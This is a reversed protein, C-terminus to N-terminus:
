FKFPVQGKKKKTGPYRPLSKTPIVYSSGGPNTDRVSQNIMTKGGIIDVGAKCENTCGDLDNNNGDDCEENFKTRPYSMEGDDVIGDGCIPMTCNDRCFNPAGWHLGQDCEEGTDIVGDGCYASRCSMRCGDVAVDSNLTGDDCDEGVEITGNGCVAAKADFGLTFLMASVIIIVVVAKNM